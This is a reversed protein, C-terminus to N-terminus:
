SWGVLGPQGEVIVLPYAYHLAANNEFHIIAAAAAAAAADGGFRALRDEDGLAGAEAGGKWHAVGLIVDFGRM